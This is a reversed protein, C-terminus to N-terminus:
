QSFADRLVRRYLIADEAPDAYYSRRRGTAQFGAAEYLKRAATNSERADLFVSDSNATRATALLADLLERGLGQRRSALAVVVNELEWEPALHLAVLFGLVSPASGSGEDPQLSATEAILVLRKPDESGPQVAQRYQEETWHAATPCARELRTIAPIDHRTALRITVPCNRDL